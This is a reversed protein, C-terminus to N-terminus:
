HKSIQGVPHIERNLEECVNHIRKMDVFIDAVDQLEDRQFESQFIIEILIKNAM